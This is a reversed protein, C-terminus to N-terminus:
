GAIEGSSGFLKGKLRLLAGRWQDVKYYVVPVIVLTMLMSCTLGGILAWGLGNKFEAGPAKSLAIPMMGLIMTLTTMLIPRLRERGAALLATTVGQGESRLKNTFDVLLIANKSVLGVQMIIGLITFINLANMTLGLSLIAGIIALPVSFMVVFPYIFSDYLAVMILYVFIIAALMVLGLSAFSKEQQEIDGGFAFRIGPPFQEQSIAKSIDKGIDGSPRGMAQSTLTISYNRDRRQLKTPGIARYISAFQKLAVPQGNRNLITLSTLEATQSRDFQDLIIRTDYEVGDRDRFQSQTDGTLGVRLAAGVEAMSLGLAAMKERDIELRLEPKGEEASLRVDDTGHVAQILKVVRNATTSVDDWNSGSILLQIPAGEASGWIAVPYVRIKTGPLRQIIKTKLGRSVEDTSRHRAQKPVLSVNIEAIRSASLGVFGSTSAGVNVFVRDIEPTKAMIAEAVQTAHNTQELEAGPPLELNMVFEGRDTQPIFEAGVFGLPVLAIVSIFLLIATTIVKWRNGLSWELIELYLRTLRQYQGEFWEGFRGMLSDRGFQELRAFRSALMPTITFSVLLSMLTAFVVVLAFEKMMGGITGTVLSLPLFVVVDVMTISLATFGIENRGLLAAHPRNEGKELHRYINELVVISDDVLIGIVLSLALLTILNLSFGFAWIGIFTSLLSAPIAVLVILSNRISHLFILMVCAVLLIAIGLDEKVANASDITFLSSDEAIEFHLSKGQYEKELRQLERRVTKCVEVANADSQKQILIGVASRGNVRILNTDEKRGDQIEALDGLKIAGGQPSHGITLQALEELSNFKGALRVTFQADSDKVTGTPFDLNAGQVAQAVKAISIGYSELRQSDLNVKIEREEGGVLDVQGVGPIRSLQPKIQDKMFQYFARTPLNGTAGLRMVPQDNISIKSITPPEAGEPLDAMIASVKRQTDQILFDLNAGAIFEIVVTSVNEQSTSYVGDVKDLTSVADEIKKTLGNEVEKASAGPYVTIISIVPISIDPLLEYKLQSYGFIGLISLALFFVIILSPRKIAIETLTM